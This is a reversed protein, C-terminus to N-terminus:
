LNAKLILNWFPRTIFNIVGISKAYDITENLCYIGFIDRYNKVAAKYYKKYDPLGLDKFFSKKIYQSRMFWITFIYTFGFFTKKLFGAQEIYKELCMKQYAMHRGEEIHHLESTKRLISYVTPDKRLHKAYIDTVQEVALIMVYTSAAGLVKLSYSSLFRHFPSFPQTKVGLKEITKAFMYQHRFEEILMSVLYKGESSTPTVKMLMKNFFLCAMSESWAYTAMVQAVELKALTSIQEKSLNNILTNGALSILYNPLHVEGDKIENEWPIFEDPMVPHTKSLQILRNIKEENTITAMTVIRKKILFIISFCAINAPLCYNEIVKQM